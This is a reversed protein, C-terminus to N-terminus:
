RSNCKNSTQSSSDEKKENSKIADTSNQLEQFNFVKAHPDVVSILHKHTDGYLEFTIPKLGRSQDHKECPFGIMRFKQYGNSYVSTDINLENYKNRYHNKLRIMDHVTTKYRPLTLHFSSKTARCDDSIAWDSDTTNFITNLFKITNDYLNTRTLKCTKDDIDFYPKIWNNKDPHIVEYLTCEPNPICMEDCIDEVSMEVYQKASANWTKAVTVKEKM